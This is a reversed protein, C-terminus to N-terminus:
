TLSWRGIIDYRSAVAAMVSEVLVFERAHWTVPPLDQESPKRPADRLLTVHPLYPRDDNPSAYAALRARLQAELAALPPPCAAGVWAIRSRRFYGLRDFDLTFRTGHVEGAVSELEVLRERAVQGVFFLTLHIRDARTPRGGCEAQLDRAIAALADRVEPAPWLAFFLRAVAQRTTNL